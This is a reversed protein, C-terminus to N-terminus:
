ISESKPVKYVKQEHDIKAFVIGNNYYRIIVKLDNNPAYKVVGLSVGCM